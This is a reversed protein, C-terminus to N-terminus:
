LDFYFPVKFEVDVISISIFSLLFTLRAGSIKKENSAYECFLLGNTHIPAIHIQKNLARQLWQSTCSINEGM